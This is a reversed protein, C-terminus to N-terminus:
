IEMVQPCDICNGYSIGDGLMKQTKQINFRYDLIVM